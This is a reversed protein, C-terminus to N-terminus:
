SKLLLEESEYVFSVRLQRENTKTLLFGTVSIKQPPARM